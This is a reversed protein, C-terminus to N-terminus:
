SSPFLVVALKTNFDKHKEDSSVANLLTQLVAGFRCIKEKHVLECIEFYHAAKGTASITVDQHAM